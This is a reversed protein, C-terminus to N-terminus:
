DVLLSLYFDEKARIEDAEEPTKDNYGILHLVGHIIVRKLEQMKSVKYTTANEFVRDVSIYLDGSIKNEEVYNFTIIDTYNDHDLYTQNMEYLFSDSCFICNLEGLKKNENRIAGNIWDCILRENLALKDVDQYYFEVFSESM